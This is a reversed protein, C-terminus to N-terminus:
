KRMQVHRHGTRAAPVEQIRPSVRQDVLHEGDVDIHDCRVGLAPERIKPVLDQRRM